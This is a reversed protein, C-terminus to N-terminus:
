KSPLYLIKTGKAYEKIIMDIVENARKWSDYIAFYSNIDLQNQRVIPVIVCDGSFCKKIFLRTQPFNVCGNFGRVLM